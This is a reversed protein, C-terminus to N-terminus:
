STGDTLRLRNVDPHIPACILNKKRMETLHKAPQVAPVAERHIVNARELVLRLFLEVLLAFHAFHTAHAGIGVLDVCRRSSQFMFIFM